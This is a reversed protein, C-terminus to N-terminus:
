DHVENAQDELVKTIFKLGTIITSLESNGGFEIIVGGNGRKGRKISAVRIDTSGADEIRIFTRSGHSSDGGKYGNTGAEVELINTNVVNRKFTEVQINDIDIVRREIEYM